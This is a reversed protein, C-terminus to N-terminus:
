AAQTGLDIYVFPKEYVIFPEGSDVVSQFIAQNEEHPYIDFHNKLIWVGVPLLEMLRRLQTESTRLAQEAQIREKIRM